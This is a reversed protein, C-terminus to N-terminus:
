ERAAPNGDRPITLKRTQKFQRFRAINRDSPRAPNSDTMGAHSPQNVSRYNIIRLRQLPGSGPVDEYATGLWVRTDSKIKLPGKHFARRTELNRRSPKSLLTRRSPNDRLRNSRTISRMYRRLRDM